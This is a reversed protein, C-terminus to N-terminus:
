AQKCSGPAYRHENRGEDAGLALADVTRGKYSLRTPWRYAECKKTLKM